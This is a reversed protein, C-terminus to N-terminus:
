FVNIAVLCSGYGHDMTHRQFHQSVRERWFFFTKVLRGFYILQHNKLLEQGDQLM